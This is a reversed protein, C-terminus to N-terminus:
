LEKRRKELGSRVEINQIKTIYEGLLKMLDTDSNEALYKLLSDVIVLYASQEKKPFLRILWEYIEIGERIKGSQMLKRAKLVLTDEANEDDSTKKAVIAIASRVVEQIKGINPDMKLVDFRKPNKEVVWELRELLVQKQRLDNTKEIKDTLTWIHRAFVKPTYIPEATGSQARELVEILQIMEDKKRNTELVDLLPEYREFVRPSRKVAEMLIKEAEAMKGQKQYVQALLDLCPMFGPYGTRFLNDAITSADQIDWLQFSTRAVGLTAWPTPNRSLATEMQLISLYAQKENEYDGQKQYTDVLIRYLEKKEFYNETKEIKWECQQIVWVYNGNRYLQYLPMFQEVLQYSQIIRAELVSQNVWQVIIDSAGMEAMKMIADYRNETTIVVIRTGYPLVGDRNLRRLMEEGADDNCQMVIMRVKQNVRVANLFAGNVGSTAIRM